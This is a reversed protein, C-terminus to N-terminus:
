FTKVTSNKFIFSNALKNIKQSRFIFHPAWALLVSISNNPFNSETRFLEEIDFYKASSYKLVVTSATFKKRFLLLFFFFKIFRSSVLNV